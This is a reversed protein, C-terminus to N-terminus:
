VVLAFVTFLMVLGVINEISTLIKIRMLLNKDFIKPYRNALELGKIFKMIEKLTAPMSAKKLISKSLKGKKRM